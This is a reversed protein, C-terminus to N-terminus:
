NWESALIIVNKGIECNGGFLDKYRSSPLIEKSTQSATKRGIRNVQRCHATITKVKVTVPKAEVSVM